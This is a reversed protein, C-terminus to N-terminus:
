WRKCRPCWTGHLWGRKHRQWGKKVAWTYCGGGGDLPSDWEVGCQWRKFTVFAYQASYDNWWPEVCNSPHGYSGAERIAMAEPTPEQWTFTVKRESFGSGHQDSAASTSAAQPSTASGDPECPEPQGPFGHFLKDLLEMLVLRDEYSLSLAKLIALQSEVPLGTIAASVDQVVEAQLPPMIYFLQFRIEVFGPKLRQM